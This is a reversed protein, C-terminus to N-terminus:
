ITLGVPLSREAVCKALSQLLELGEWERISGECEKQLVGQLEGLTMIIPGNKMERKRYDHVHRLRKEKEM